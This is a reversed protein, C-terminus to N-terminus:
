KINIERQINFIIELPVLLVCVCVCMCVQLPLPLSTSAGGTSHMCKQKQQCQRLQWRMTGWERRFECVCVYEYCMCIGACVYLCVNFLCRLQLKSFQASCSPSQLPKRSTHLNCTALKTTSHPAHPACNIYSSNYSTASHCLPQQRHLMALVCSIGYASHKNTAMFFHPM